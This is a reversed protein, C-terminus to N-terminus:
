KRRPCPISGKLELRSACWVAHMATKLAAGDDALIRVVLGASNPLSSVGLAGRSGSFDISKLRAELAPFPCTRGAVIMTGQATFHGGVGVRKAATLQADLHLRDVALRKGWEDEVAIESQFSSFLGGAAVPDHTLFSDSVIACSSGAVRVTLISELRSQPFLIQPDPLYEAFAGDHLTIKVDHKASGSTMGHVITAAQSTVHAEAFPHAVADVSLRDDEYLGGACSQVYLTALGPLAPDHYQTRCIHFPYSAYQRSIFTRGGTNRAFEVSLTGQVLARGPMQRETTSPNALLPAEARFCSTM